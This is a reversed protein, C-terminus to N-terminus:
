LTSGGHHLCDYSESTMYEALGLDCTTMTNHKCSLCQNVKSQKEKLVQQYYDQPVEYTTFRHGCKICHKRRRRHMMGNIKSSLVEVFKENCEPCYERTSVARAQKIREPETKVVVPKTMIKGACLRSCFFRKRGRKISSNYQFISREFDKGCNDCQLTILKAM